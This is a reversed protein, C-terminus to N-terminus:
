RVLQPMQSDPHISTGSSTSPNGSAHFSWSKKPSAFEASADRLYTNLKEHLTGYCPLYRFQRETRAPLGTVSGLRFGRDRAM